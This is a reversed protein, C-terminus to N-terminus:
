DHQLGHILPRRHRYAMDPKRCGVDGSGLPPELRDAQARYEGIVAQGNKLKAAARMHDDPLRFLRWCGARGRREIQHHVVDLRRASVISIFAEPGGLDAPAPDM